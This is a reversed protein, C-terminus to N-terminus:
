SVPCCKDGERDPVVLTCVAAHLIGPHVLDIADSLTVVMRVQLIDGSDLMSITYCPFFVEFLSLPRTSSLPVVIEATDANEVLTLLIFPDFCLLQLM